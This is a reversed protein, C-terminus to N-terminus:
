DLYIRAEDLGSRGLVPVRIYGERNRFRVDQAIKQNPEATENFWANRDSTALANFHFESTDQTEVSYVHVKIGSGDKELDVEFQGEFSMTPELNASKEEAGLPLTFYAFVGFFRPKVSGDTLSEELQKAARRLNPTIM